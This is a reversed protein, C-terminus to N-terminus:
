VLTSCLLLVLIVCYLSLGCWTAIMVLLLGAGGGENVNERGKLDLEGDM